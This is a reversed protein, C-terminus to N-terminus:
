VVIKGGPMCWANVTKDDVLNYEWKYGALQNAIGKSAYYNTVANTIRQGARRVMDLDRNMSSTVVKNTSLFQQYQTAAMTQLESEPLLKFQSRGTVVNKSCAILLASVIIFSIFQRIM